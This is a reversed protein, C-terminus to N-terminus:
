EGFVDDIMDEVDSDTSSAEDIVIPTVDIAVEERNIFATGDVEVDLGTGIKVGGLRTETATPLTYEGGGGGGSGGKTLLYLVGSIKETPQTKALFRVYGEYSRIAPCVRAASAAGFSDEDLLADPRMEETVDEDILDSYFPYREDEGEQWSNPQLLFVVEKAIGGQKQLAEGVAKADAAAGEITLTPDVEIYSKPQRVWVLDEADFMWLAYSGDIERFVSANPPYPFKSGPEGPKPDTSKGVFRLAADAHSASFASHTVGM